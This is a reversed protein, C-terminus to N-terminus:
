FWDALMLCSFQKFLLEGQVDTDKSTLFFMQIKVFQPALELEQKVPKAKTPGPCV